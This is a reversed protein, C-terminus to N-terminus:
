AVYFIQKGKYRLIDLVKSTTPFEDKGYIDQLLMWEFMGGTYIYVEIFGLSLLQSYKKEVTDDNTNKGYVVITKDRFVYQNLLENIIKEEMNFSVTNLILCGQEDNPLTNILIYSGKHKIAYQM